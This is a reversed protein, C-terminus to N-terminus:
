GAMWSSMVTGATGREGSIRCARITGLGSSRGSGTDTGLGVNSRRASSCLPAPFAFPFPRPFPLPPLLMFSRTGM